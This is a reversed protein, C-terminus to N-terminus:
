SQLRSPALQSFDVPVIALEIDHETCVPLINPDADACVLVLAPSASTDQQQEWAARYTLLQGVARAKGYREVEFITPTGAKWGVADLRLKKALISASRYPEVLALPPVIDPGLRTNYEFSDYFSGYQALWARWILIEAVQMGPYKSRDDAFFTAPNVM